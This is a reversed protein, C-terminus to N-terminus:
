NTKWRDKAINIRGAYAPTIGQTITTNSITIYEERTHPPSGVISNLNKRPVKNKGRIRPHDENCTRRENM